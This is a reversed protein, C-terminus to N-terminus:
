KKVGNENLFEIVTPLINRVMIKVGEANPHAGDSLLYTKDFNMQLPNFKLVDKMFFPYLLLGNKRALEEYMNNFARAYSPNQFPPVQMGILMVPIGAQQLREIMRKLNRETDHIPQSRLADNIGLELLVGDPKSGVLSSMRKAGGSTTEGSKSFNIVSVNKYGKDHLAKELQSYFADPPTLRYGAALSDGYVALKFPAAWATMSWMLISVALILFRM